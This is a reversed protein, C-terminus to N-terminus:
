KLEIAQRFELIAASLRSLSYGWFRRAEDQARGINKIQLMLGCPNSSGALGKLRQLVFSNDGGWKECGQVSQALHWALNLLNEPGDNFKPVTFIIDIYSGLRLHKADIIEYAKECGVSEIPTEAANVVELFKQLEPWGAVEPVECVSEPRGKLHAYGHNINGNSRRAPPYPVPPGWSDGLWIGCGGIGWLRIPDPPPGAELDYSNLASLLKHFDPVNKEPDAPL